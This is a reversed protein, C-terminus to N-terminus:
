RVAISYLKDGHAFRVQKGRHCLRMNAKIAPDSISKIGASDKQNSFIEIKEEETMCVVIGHELVTFNIGTPTINEIKRVDYSQWDKAFRFVYRSYNGEKDMVVAMLVNNEYKADILKVGALEDMKLQRHQKSAPFVSVMPAGFVDQFVVGQFMQTAKPLVNAVAISLPCTGTGTSSSFAGTGKSPEVFIIEYVHGEYHAYLRGECSMIDNAGVSFPGSNTPLYDGTDLDLVQAREGDQVLAVPVNGLPTFGVRFRSNIKPRPQNDVYLGDTTVVVERGGREVYGTIQAMYQRLEAIDFNNSGVIEKVKAVFQIAAQFDAPAPLRKNEIFVARYWQMFAGDKGGPIVSEFPFYVAAQPYAAEKDFISVGATMQDVMSTKINPFKPHRHKYPHIGTFMYFSIVAFSFWDTLHSFNTGAQWDRISAMIADAPFSPTQYSNVDIFYVDKFTDTVMYNLENGDVQLYGPKKHIFRIGDAIQKVLEAMMDPTVGERERFTKTLIQALPVANGPVLRMTYGVIHKKSDELIDDPRIIRPHDLAHLEVLKRIDIMKGPECVKYVTDGIVYISGEGGKAKFNDKTLDVTAGTGRVKFKM